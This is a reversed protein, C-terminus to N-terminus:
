LDETGIGELTNERTQTENRRQESARGGPRSFGSYHVVRIIMSLPAHTGRREGSSKVVIVDSGVWEDSM